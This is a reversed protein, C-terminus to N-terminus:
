TQTSQVGENIDPFYGAGDGDGRWIAVHGLLLQRERTRGFCRGAGRGRGGGQSRSTDDPSTVPSGGGGGEEDRSM